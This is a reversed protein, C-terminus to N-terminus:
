LSLYVNRIVERQLGIYRRTIAISSHNFIQSLIVLANESKNNMEYVRKGFTKRLSHSSIRDDVVGYEKVTQRLLRNLQQITIPKGTNKRGTFVYHAPDAGVISAANEILVSLKENIQIIRRKKTKKEILDIQSKGLIQLWKLSLLDSARLGCYCGIGLLLQMRYLQWTELKTKSMQIGYSIRSLITELESWEFPRSENCNSNM